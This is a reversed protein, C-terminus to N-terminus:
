KNMTNWVGRDKREQTRAELAWLGFELQTIAMSTYRNPLKQNFTSLRNILIKILEENTTGDNVTVLTPDEASRAQKEIFQIIQGNEPTDFNAALYKQGPTLIIM